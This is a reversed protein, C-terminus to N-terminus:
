GQDCLLLHLVRGLAIVKTEPGSEPCPNAGSIEILPGM